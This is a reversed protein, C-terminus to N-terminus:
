NTTGFCAIPVMNLWCIPTVRLEMKSFSCKVLWLVKFFLGIPLMVTTDWEDGYQMYVNFASLLWDDGAPKAILVTDKDKPHGHM